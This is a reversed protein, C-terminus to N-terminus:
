VHTRRLPNVCAEGVKHTKKCWRANLCLCTCFRSRCMSHNLMRLANSFLLFLMFPFLVWVLISLQASAMSTSCGSPACICQSANLVRSASLQMKLHNIPNKNQTDSHKAQKYHSAGVSALSPVPDEPDPTTSTTLGQLICASSIPLIHARVQPAM